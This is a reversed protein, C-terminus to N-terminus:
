KGELWRACLTGAAEPWPADPRVEGPWLAALPGAAWQDPEALGRMLLPLGADLRAGPELGGPGEGRLARRLRRRWSGLRRATFAAYGAEDSGALALPGHALWLRASARVEAEFDRERTAWEETPRLKQEVAEAHAEMVEGPAGLAQLAAPREAYRLPLRCAALLRADGPAMRAKLLANLRFGDGARRGALLEPLALLVLAYGRNALLRHAERVCDGRGLARPLREVAAGSGWLVRHGARAEAHFLSRPGRRWESEAVWALDLSDLEWHAAWADAQEHWDGPVAAGERRVLVLDVDNWPRFGGLRTRLLSGEGRGFGGVVLMGDLLRGWPKLLQDRLGQLLQEAAREAAPENWATWIV